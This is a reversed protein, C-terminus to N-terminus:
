SLAILYGLANALEANKKAYFATRETNYAIVETNESIEAMYSEINKNSSEIEKLSNVARDMSCNLNSLQRNSENIASYIMYQNQKIEELSVIVQKLHSIVMDMRIENEFLNYAGHPGELTECRGSVLYEYLSSIAVFNRYKEFLIDYSYMTKRAQCLDTLLKEAIEIEERLIILKANELSPVNEMDIRLQQQKKLLRDYKIKSEVIKEKLAEDAKKLAIRFENERCKKLESVALDYEQLERMYKERDLEYQIM